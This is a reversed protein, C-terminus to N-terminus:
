GRASAGTINPKVCKVGKHPTGKIKIHNRATSPGVRLSTVKRGDYFANWAVAVLRSLYEATTRVKTNDKLEILKERLVKPPDRRSLGSDDAVQPWFVEARELQHRVTVLGVALVPAKRLLGFFHKQSKVIEFYTKGFPLWVRTLTERVQRSREAYAQLKSSARPGFGRIILSMAAVVANTHATSLGFEAALGSAQIADNHTRMIGIDTNAYHRQVEDMDACYIIVVM